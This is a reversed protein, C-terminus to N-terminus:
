RGPAVARLPADLALAGRRRQSVASALEPRRAPLDALLAEFGQVLSDATVEGVDQVHDGLGVQGMVERTKFEYAIPLVPTGAGLAVIGAHMRTTVAVEHGALVRVLGEHDYRQADLRVSATVDPPLQAGVSAAVRSDDAWYEPTGQCTSVFTVRAGRERVLHVVLGAVAAEFAAQGAAGDLFMSCDRVSVAVAPEASVQESRLREESQETGLAFVIDPVVRARDVSAGIDRLHALSRDDRLLVLAARDVLSRLRPVVDPRSFPGLSQPLLVLEAGGASAVELEFLKPDLPYKEILTTGGTHAVVDARVLSMVSAAERRRLLLRALLPSRRGLRAALLVRRRALRARRGAGPGTPTSMGAVVSEHVELGPYLRRAVRQDSDHLAVEAEPWTRRLLDLQADLIAADGGNSVVTGVVVVRM